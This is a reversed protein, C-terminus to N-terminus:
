SMATSLGRLFLAELGGFTQRAKSTFGAVVIETIAAIGTWRSGFCAVFSVLESAKTQSPVSAPTVQGPKAKQEATRPIRSALLM